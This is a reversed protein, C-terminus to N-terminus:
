FSMLKRSLYLHSISLKIILVHCGSPQIAYKCNIFDIFLVYLVLYLLYLYLFYSRTKSQVTIIKYQFYLSLFVYFQKTKWQVPLLNM